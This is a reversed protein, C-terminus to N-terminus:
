CTGDGDGYNVSNGNWYANNYNVGVHARSKIQMGANDISDRAHVALYYDYTSIAYNHAANVAVDSTSIANPSQSVLLCASTSTSQQCNETRLSRAGLVQPRIAVLAGTVVSAYLKDNQYPRDQLPYGIMREWAKHAVGDKDFVIKLGCDSLWASENGYTALTSNFADDCSVRVNVDVSGDVVIEGNVAYVTGNADVHIVVAADVVELGEYTQELRVHSHGRNDKVLKNNNKADKFKENGTGGFKQKVIKGLTKKTNDLLGQDNGTANTVTGLSGDAFVRGGKKASVSRALSTALLLTLLNRKMTSENQSPIPLFLIISLVFSPVFSCSSAFPTTM